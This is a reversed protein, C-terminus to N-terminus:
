SDKTDQLAQLFVDVENDASDSAMMREVSEDRVHQSVAKSIVTSISKKSVKSKVSKGSKVTSSSSSSDCISCSSSSGSSKSNCVSRTDGEEKEEQKRSKGEKTGVSAADGKETVVVSRVSSLDSWVTKLHEIKARKEQETVEGGKKSEEVKKKEKEEKRKKTQEKCDSSSPRKRNEKERNGEKVDQTQSGDVKRIFKPLEYRKFNELAKEAEEGRVGTSNQFCIMDEAKVNCNGHPSTKRNFLKKCDPCKWCFDSHRELLHRRVFWEKEFSVDECKVCLWKTM